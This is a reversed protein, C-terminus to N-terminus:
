PSLLMPSLSSFVKGVKIVLKKLFSSIYTGKVFDVVMPDTSDTLALVPM